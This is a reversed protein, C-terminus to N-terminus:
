YLIYQQIHIIKIIGIVVIAMVLMMMMMMMMIMMSVDKRLWLSFMKMLHMQM